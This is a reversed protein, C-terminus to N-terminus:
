GAGARSRAKSRKGDRREKLEDVGTRKKVGALAQELVAGLSKAVSARQVPPLEPDALAGALDLAVLGLSTSERKAEKLESLVQRRIRYDLPRRRRKSVAAAAAKGEHHRVRCTTGCYVKRSSPPVDFPNGCQPCAREAM